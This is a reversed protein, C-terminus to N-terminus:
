QLFLTLDRFDWVVENYSLQLKTSPFKVGQHETNSCLHPKLYFAEIDEAIVPGLSLNFNVVSPLLQFSHILFSYYDHVNDHVMLIIYEVFLLVIM